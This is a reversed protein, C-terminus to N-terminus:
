QAKKYRELKAMVYKEADDYSESTTIRKHRGDNYSLLPFPLYVPTECRTYRIILDWDELRKLNEDFGDCKAIMSKHHVFVGMDIYNGRCLGDFDFEKGIIGGDSQRCIQAYFVKSKPNCVIGNRFTELFDVYMENDSDLYAIWKGKALKQGLTRAYCAGRNFPLKHYIIKRSRIQKAYNQKIVDETGDSSGDDVVILEFNQYTQCLLSNIAKTICFARNYTPLVVSFGDRKLSRTNKNYFIGIKMKCNKGRMLFRHIESM